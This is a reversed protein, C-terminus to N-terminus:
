EAITPVVLEVVTRLTTEYEFSVALRDDALV